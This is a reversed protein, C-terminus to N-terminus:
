YKRIYRNESPNKIWFIGRYGISYLQNMHEKSRVQYLNPNPEPARIIHDATIHTSPGVGDGCRFKPLKTLHQGKCTPCSVLTKTYKDPLPHVIPEPIHERFRVEM